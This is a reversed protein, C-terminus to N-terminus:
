GSTIRLYFQRFLKFFAHNYIKSLLYLYKRTRLDNVSPSSAFQHRKYRLSFVLRKM